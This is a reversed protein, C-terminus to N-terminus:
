WRVRRARVRTTPTTSALATWSPITDPIRRATLLGGAPSRFYCLRWRTVVGDIVVSLRCDLDDDLAWGLAHLFVEDPDTVGLPPPILLEEVMRTASVVADQLVYRTGGVWYMTEYKDATTSEGVHVDSAGKAVGHTLVEYLAM